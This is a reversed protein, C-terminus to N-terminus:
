TFRQPEGGWTLRGTPQLPRPSIFLFPPTFFHTEARGLERRKWMDRRKRMTRRITPIRQREGVPSANKVNRSQQRTSADRSTQTGGTRRRRGGRHNRRRRRRRPHQDDRTARRRWWRRRRWHSRRRRRVRWSKPGGSGWRDCTGVTTAAAMMLTGTTITEAQNDHSRSRRLPSTSSFGPGGAGGFGRVRLSMLLQTALSWIPSTTSTVLLIWSMLLGTSAGHAASLPSTISLDPFSTMMWYVDPVYGRGGSCSSSGLNQTCISSTRGSARAGSKV